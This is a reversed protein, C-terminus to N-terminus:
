IYVLRGFNNSIQEDIVGRFRTFIYFFLVNKKAKEQDKVTGSLM